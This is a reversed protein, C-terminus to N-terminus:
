FLITFDTQWRAVTRLSCEFGHNTLIERVLTLGIGQGDKKTSNFPSFLKAEFEPPIGAGTDSIVLGRPNEMTQITINGDQGIADIANRLINILAQEMQHIDANIRFIPNPLKFLFAINKEQARVQLLGTINRLLHVLDFSQRQPMPLRVLDSFSRMFHNLHGNREIAIQLAEKLAPTLQQSQLTSQLISNVPGITNNVEHAMLRIVKGYADKKASLIEATLEEILIFHRPFGRDIFHSKTLKYTHGGNLTITTHQHTPLSVAANLLPKGWDNLLQQAVPNAQHIKDDYDMILIGTPSTQILKELFLHQEEQRVREARLADIMENYTHILRDMEKQKTPLFKVNFDKDKIAETGRLLLRIPQLLQQYLRVSLGITGLVIFEAVIFLWKETSFVFYSLTLILGHLIAILLIYKTRLKM